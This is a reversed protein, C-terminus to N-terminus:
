RQGSSRNTLRIASSSLALESVFCSCECARLLVIHARQQWPELGLRGPAIDRLSLVQQLVDEVLMEGGENVGVILAISLLVSLEHPSAWDKLTDLLDRLMEDDTAIVRVTDGADAAGVQVTPM